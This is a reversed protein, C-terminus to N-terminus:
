IFRRDAPGTAGAHVAPKLSSSLLNSQEAHQLRPRVCLPRYRTRESHCALHRQNLAFCLRAQALHPQAERLADALGFLDPPGGLPSLSMM